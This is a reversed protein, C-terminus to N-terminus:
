PTRIVEDDLAALNLTMTGEVSSVDETSLRYAIEIEDYRGTQFAEQSIVFMDVELRMSSHIIYSTDAGYSFYGNGRQAKLVPLGISGNGDLGWQARQFPEQPKIAIMPSKASGRGTNELGVIFGVRRNDENKRITMKLEPRRRRGFMDAIEFHEMRQFSDGSRKYFYYERRNSMHPGSDSAPVFTKIFGTDGDQIIEQHLVGDVIPSVCTGTQENLRNLAVRVGDIPFLECACDVDSGEPKRADVGWVIIGGDSNAYGSIAKALNKKDDRHLNSRNLRKFDLHLSEEKQEELYEEIKALDINDYIDKLSM